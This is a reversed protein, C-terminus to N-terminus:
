IYSTFLIFCSYVLCILPTSIHVSWCCESNNCHVHNKKSEGLVSFNTDEEHCDMKACRSNYDGYDGDGGDNNDGSGGSNGSGDAYYCATDDWSGSTRNYYQYEGIGGGEYELDVYAAWLVYRACGEDTVEDGSGGSAVYDDDFMIENCDIMFGLLRWAQQYEDYEGMGEIFPQVSFPNYNTYAGSTSLDDEVVEELTRAKRRNNSQQQQQQNKTTKKKNGNYKMNKNANLLPLFEVDETVSVWKDKTQSPDYNISSGMLEQIDKEKLYPMRRRQPPSAASVVAVPAVQLMSVAAISALVATAAYSTPQSSATM